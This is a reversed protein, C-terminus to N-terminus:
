RRGTRPRRGTGGCCTPPASRVACPRPPSVRRLAAPLGGLVPGPALVRQGLCDRDRTRCGSRGRAAAGADARAPAGPGPGHREFRAGEPLKKAANANVGAAAGIQGLSLPEALQAMIFDVARRLYAPPVTEEVRDQRPDGALLLSGLLAKEFEEVVLASALLPSGGQIESWLFALYRGFARGAPRDLRLRNPLRLPQSGTGGNMAAAYDDLTRNFVNIVMAGADEPMLLDFPDEPNAACASDRLFTRTRGAVHAQLPSSLPLNICFSGFGDSATVRAETMSIRFLAVDGFRVAKLRAKYAGWRTPRIAFNTALRSMREPMEEPDDFRIDLRDVRLRKATEPDGGEEL